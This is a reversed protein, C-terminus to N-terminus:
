DRPRIRGQGDVFYSKVRKGDLLVRIEYGRQGGRDIPSASLVRGGTERRVKNAAQELSIGPLNEVLTHPELQEQMARRWDPAAAAPGAVLLTSLLALGLVAARRVRGSGNPISAGGRRAAAATGPTSMPRNRQKGM